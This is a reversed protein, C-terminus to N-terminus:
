KFNCIEGETVEDKDQKRRRDKSYSIMKCVILNAFM